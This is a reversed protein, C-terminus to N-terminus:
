TVTAKGSSDVAFGICRLVGAGAADVTFGFSACGDEDVTLSVRPVAGLIAAGSKDHATAGELLTKPTVSDGTLDILTRGGYIIKNTAM